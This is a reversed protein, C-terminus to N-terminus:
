ASVGYSEPHVDLILHVRWEAGDNGAAHPQHKDFAYWAGAAMHQKAGGFEFWAEPSTVIPLHFRETADAYTGMDTHPAVRGGPRLRVLMARAPRGNVRACLADIAIALPPSGLYRTAVSALQLIVDRPRMGPQRRLFITESDAHPTYPMQQRWREEGWADELDPLVAVIGSIDYEFLPEIGITM